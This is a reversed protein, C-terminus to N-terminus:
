DVKRGIYLLHECSGWVEPNSAVAEFVDLWSQFDEEPLQMLKDEVLVGLSEVAMIRLTELKFQSMFGRIDAPNFFYADTFGQAVRSDHRGDELYRLLSDKLKGIDQPYAKLCDIIPAYASIFSVILIGDKKLLGMCQNIAERREDEKLLHYMPGMCLIADFERGPLIDCLSLVNGQICDKLVVGASKANEAAQEVMKECLDFLTVEHGREALYISYRGPGGGVDLVSAKEPIFKNLARKTIEFEIRHRLLRGWEDYDHNYYQEISGM